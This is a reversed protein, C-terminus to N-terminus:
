PMEVIRSQWNCCTAAILICQWRLRELPSWAQKLPKALADSNRLSTSAGFRNSRFYGNTEAAKILCSFLNDKGVLEATGTSSDTLGRLVIKYYNFCSILQDMELHIFDGRCPSKAQEIDTCHCKCDTIISIIARLM